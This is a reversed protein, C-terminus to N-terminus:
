NILKALASSLDPHSSTEPENLVMLEPHRPKSACCGMFYIAYLEM